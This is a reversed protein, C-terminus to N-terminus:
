WGGGGNHAYAAEAADIGKIWDKFEETGSAYPCTVQPKGMDFVNGDFAEWGDNYAQSKWFLRM